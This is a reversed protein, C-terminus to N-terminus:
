AGLDWHLLPKLEQKPASKQKQQVPYLSPDNHKEHQDDLAELTPQSETHDQSIHATQTTM